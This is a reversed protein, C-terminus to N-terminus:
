RDYYPNQVLKPNHDLEGQPIPLYYAMTDLVRSRLIPRNKVDAGSLIMQIILSKNEFHNKKAFRLVDFWRKGELAFEKAREELLISRFTVLQPLITLPQLTARELIENIYSNAEDFRSLESLAEAKMLLIDAYRYYIMNVDYDTSKRKEKPNLSKYQYKSLPDPSGQRIDTASFLDQCYPKLKLKSSGVAPVMEMSFPNYEGDYDDNYQIEFISETANGPYYLTFWNNVNELEFKGSSILEDCIGICKEYQESWLYIDALLANMSYWNARGKYMEPISAYQDKYAITKAKQLDAEIQKIIEAETNKEVAFSVTDSSSAVLVLPVEKWIRVMDFYCKSRIFLAEAEYSKELDVEFTEDKSLVDESFALVTNALNIANYFGSWSISGNSPLIESQAISKYDSFSSGTFDVMDARLEGWVWLEESNRRYANYMAAMVAAVDEKKQWFEQKVLKNEPELDLWENCSVSSLILLALLLYSIHKRIKKM